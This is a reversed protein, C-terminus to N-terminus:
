IVCLFSEMKLIQYRIFLLHLHNVPSFFSPKSYKCHYLFIALEQKQFAPNIEKIKQNTAVCIKLIALIVFVWSLSQLNRRPELNGYEKSFTWSM